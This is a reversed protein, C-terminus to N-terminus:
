CDEEYVAFYHKRVNRRKVININNVTFPVLYPLTSYIDIVELASLKM